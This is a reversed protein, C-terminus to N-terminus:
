VNETINGCNNQVTHAMEATIEL